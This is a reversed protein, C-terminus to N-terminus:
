GPLAQVGIKNAFPATPDLELCALSEIGQVHCYMPRAAARLAEYQDRTLDGEIYFPFDGQVPYEAGTKWEPLESTLTMWGESTEGVFDSLTQAMLSADTTLEFGLLQNASGSFTYIPAGDADRLVLAITATACDQGFAAAEVSFNAAGRLVERPAVFAMCAPMDTGMAAEAAVPPSDIDDLMRDAASVEDPGPDRPTCAALAAIAFLSVTFRRLM